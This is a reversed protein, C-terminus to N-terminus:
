QRTLLVVEPAEGLVRAPLACCRPTRWDMEHSSIMVAKKKMVLALV